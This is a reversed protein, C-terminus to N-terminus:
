TLELQNRSYLALIPGIKLTFEGTVRDPVLSSQAKIVGGNGADADTIRPRVSKFKIPTHGDLIGWKLRGPGLIDVKEVAVTDHDTNAGIVAQFARRYDIHGKHHGQSILVLLKIFSLEVECGDVRWGIGVGVLGNAHIAVYM